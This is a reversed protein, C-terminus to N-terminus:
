RRCPAAERHPDLVHLVQQRVQLLRQATYPSLGDHRFAPRRSSRVLPETTTRISRGRLRAGRRGGRRGRRRRLRRGQRREGRDLRPLQQEGQAVGFSLIEPLEYSHLERITAAVGEFEGELTKVLLLLEGDKCIKGKWRYISRLRPPHQRVRGPAARRDRARHPLGARRNWRHHRRRDCAHFCPVASTGLSDIVGSGGSRSELHLGAGQRHPQRRAGRRAAAAGDTLYLSGPTSTGLPSFSALDSQNFRIPDGDAGPARALRSGAGAAGAPLRLRRRARLQLAAAAPEVQPDVGSDIDRNLVGDGDGDRYLTFTVTGDRATRFKVAVNAGHRVAWSRALRLVGVLEGAALRLRLDGTVAAAAASRPHRPLRAGGPRRHARGTPLRESHSTMARRRSSARAPPAGPGARGASKLPVVGAKRSPPPSPTPSAKPNAAPSPLPSSSSRSGKVKEKLTTEGATAVYPKLLEFTKEGIGQVLMLDEAKKFAGNQKRYDVIRSAVSPGVRPLMALQSADANNVNVVKKADAGWVPLSNLLLALALLGAIARHARHAHKM